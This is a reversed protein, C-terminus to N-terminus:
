PRRRGEALFRMDPPQRARLTYPRMGIRGQVCHFCLTEVTAEPLIEAPLSRTM